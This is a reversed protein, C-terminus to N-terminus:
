RFRFPAVVPKDREANLKELNLEIWKGALACAEEATDAAFDKGDDRGSMRTCEWQGDSRKYLNFLFGVEERRVGPQRAGHWDPHNGREEEDLGQQDAVNKGAFFAAIAPIAM